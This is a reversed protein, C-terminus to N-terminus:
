ERWSLFQDKIMFHITVELNWHIPFIIERIEMPIESFSYFESTALYEQFHNSNKIM